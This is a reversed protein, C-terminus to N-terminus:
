KMSKIHNFYTDPTHSMIQTQAVKKDKTLRHPSSVEGMKAALLVKFDQRFYTIWFFVATQMM